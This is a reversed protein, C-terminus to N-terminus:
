TTLAGGCMACSATAPTSGSSCSSRSFQRWAGRRVGREDHGRRIEHSSSYPATKESPAPATENVCMTTVESGTTEAIM